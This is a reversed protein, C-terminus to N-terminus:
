LTKLAYSHEMLYADCKDLYFSKLVKKVNFGLKTYLNIATTNDTRVELTINKFGLKILKQIIVDLLKTAIQKGRHVESVGLSYLKPNKRKILVLAYAVIEKDILTVYILNNLIHYRISEKSLPFNEASFLKKELKFLESIDTSKAKRITM